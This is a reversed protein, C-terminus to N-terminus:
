TCPPSYDAWTSGRHGYKNSNTTIEAIVEASQVVTQLSPRSFLRTADTVVFRTACDRLQSSYRKRFREVIRTCSQLDMACIAFVAVNLKALAAVNVAVSPGGPVCMGESRGGGVAVVQPVWDGALYLPEVWQVVGVRPADAALAGRVFMEVSRLRTRADAVRKIAADPEGIAAAVAHTMEFVERFTAPCTSIVHAVSPVTARLAAIVEGEEPELITRGRAVHTLVVTPECAALAAMDVRYYSCLRSELLGARASVANWGASIERCALDGAGPLKPATVPTNTVDCEHSCAVLAAHLGLETVVDTLGPLLSAIRANHTRPVARTATSTSYERM